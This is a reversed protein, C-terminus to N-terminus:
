VGRWSIRGCKLTRSKNYMYGDCVIKPNGKTNQLIEINMTYKTCCVNIKYDNNHRAADGFWFDNVKLFNNADVNFFFQSQQTPPDSVLM